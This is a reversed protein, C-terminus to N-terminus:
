ASAFLLQKPVIPVRYAASVEIAEPNLYDSTSLYVNPKRGITRIVDLGSVSVGLHLDILLPSKLDSTVDYWDMFEHPSSFFKSRKSWFGKQFDIEDDLLVVDDARSLTQFTGQCDALPMRMEIRTGRRKPHVSISGGWSKLCTKAFYLGLGSGESKGFTAGKEFLKPLLKKPVGKGTDDISVWLSNDVKKCKVLVRGVDDLSEIANKVVNLIVRRFHNPEVFVPSLSERDFEFDIQIKSKELVLQRSTEIAELIAVEAIELSLETTVGHSRQKTELDSVIKEITRLVSAVSEDGKTKEDSLYIKLSSMPGKLDHSVQKVSDAFHDARERESQYREILKKQESLSERHDEISKKLRAIPEKLSELSAMFFRSLLRGLGRMTIDDCEACLGLERRITFIVQDFWISKLRSLLMQAVIACTLIIFLILGFRAVLPSSFLKHRDFRMVIQYDPTNEIQCTEQFKSTGDDTTKSGFEKGSKKVLVQANSDPAHKRLFSFVQDYVDRTSGAQARAAVVDCMMNSIRKADAEYSDVAAQEYILALGASIAVIPLIRRMTM